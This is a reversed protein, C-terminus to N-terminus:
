GGSDRSSLHSFEINAINKKMHDKSTIFRIFSELEEQTLVNFPFKEITVIGHILVESQTPTLLQSETVNETVNSVHVMGVNDQSESVVAMDIAQTSGDDVLDIKDDMDPVEETVVVVVETLKDNRNFEPLEDVEETTKDAHLGDQNNDASLVEETIVVIDAHKDDRNCESLEDVEETTRDAHIGDQNVDVDGVVEEPASNPFLNDTVINEMDDLQTARAAARKERRRRRCPSDYSRPPNDVFGPYCGFNLSIGVWANGALTNVNLLADRGSKWLVNFKMIISNLEIADM